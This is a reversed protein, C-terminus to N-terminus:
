KLFPNIYKIIVNLVFICKCKNKSIFKKLNMNLDQYSINEYIKIYENNDCYISNMFEENDSLELRMRNWREIIRNWLNNLLYPDLGKLYDYFVVTDFYESFDDLFDLQYSTKNGQIYKKLKSTSLLNYEM